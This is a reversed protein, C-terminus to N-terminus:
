KILKFMLSLKEYSEVPITNRLLSQNHYDSKLILSLLLSLNKAQQNNIEEFFSTISDIEIKNLFEFYKGLIGVLVDSIQVLLNSNSDIFIFNRIEKNQYILRYKDLLISINNENDFVHKSNAFTCIPHLYFMHFDNQLEHKKFDMIFELRDKNNRRIHLDDLLIQLSAGLKSNQIHRSLIESLSDIFYPLEEFPVDPYNSNILLNLTDNLEMRVVCYLANKIDLVHVTNKDLIASDVIDVLSWYLLNLHHYHLFLNETDILTQLCIELKRSKLCERFTGHAIHKFKIEGVNEQINLKNRLESLDPIDGLVALGGLVFNKEYDFNFINNKFRLCRYNNTEDYFFTYKNDFNSNMELIKALEIEPNRIESIQFEIKDM